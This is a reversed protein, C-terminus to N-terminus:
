VDQIRRVAEEKGSQLSRDIANLIFVPAFFEEYAKTQEKGTLLNYFSEFEQEFCGNLGYEFGIVKQECSINAYYLYNKDNFELTVDYDDYRVICTITQNNKYAKVSSPYDGFIETMIQVLHQSYFYFNGYANDLDVPARLFGGYVSGYEKQVAIQKLKQIEKAFVCVSGGCVRIKHAKLAQMFEKAERETITIPKDIFMPIGYEIYPKAYKYHNGGHRATIIIGDTKGAFEDYSNAVYVGYEEGLKQAAEYDDSYVGIVNIDPYLKDKIIYNLFENAHSNECGLIAINYM